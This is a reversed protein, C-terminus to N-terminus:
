GSRGPNRQNQKKREPNGIRWRRPIQPSGMEREGESEGDEGEMKTRMGRQIETEEQRQNM